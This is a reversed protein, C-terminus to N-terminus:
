FFLPNNLDSPSSKPRWVPLRELEFCSVDPFLSIDVRRLWVGQVANPIGLPLSCLIMSKSFYLFSAIYWKTKLFGLLCTDNQKWFQVNEYGWWQPNWVSNLLHASVPEILNVGFASVYHPVLCYGYADVGFLVRVRRWLTTKSRLFGSNKYPGYKCPTIAM